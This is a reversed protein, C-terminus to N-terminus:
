SNPGQLGHTFEGQEQATQVKDGADRWAATSPQSRERWTRPWSKAERVADTGGSEVASPLMGRVSWPSKGMRDRALMQATEPKSSRPPWGLVATRTRKQQPCVDPPLLPPVPVGAAPTRRTTWVPASPARGGPPTGAARSRGAGRVTETVRAAQNCSPAQSHSGEATGPHGM